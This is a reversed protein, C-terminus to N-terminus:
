KKLLKNFVDLDIDVQMTFTDALNKNNYSDIGFIVSVNDAFKWSFGYNWTGYSSHTGQYEVCIWLKDSIEPLTREWAGFFGDHDANGNQDLLLKSNGNFYGGSFRGLSFRDIFFTKAAKVYYVDNDTKNHKTGVDYVGVALAPFHNGFVNEPIGVKANFYVPYDDLPGYGTKNDFGVEANLKEFPLIGATLGLNTVVDPRNRSGDREVPIYVDTTTHLVGYPQVDTSPAWIHTSATAFVPTESLLLIGAFVYLGLVIKESLRKM